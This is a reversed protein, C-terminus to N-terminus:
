LEALYSLRPTANYLPGPVFAEFDGSSGPPIETEEMALGWTLPRGVDNISFIEVEPILVRVTLGNKISGSVTTGSADVPGATVGELSVATMPTGEPELFGGFRYYVRTVDQLEGGLNIEDTAGFGVDGPAICNRLNPAEYMFGMISLTAIGLEGMDDEATTGFAAHLDASCIYEPGPNRMAVLLEPGYPGEQLTLAVLEMDLGPMFSLDLGAPVVTGGPPPQEIPGDDDGDGGDSEASGCACLFQCAFAM